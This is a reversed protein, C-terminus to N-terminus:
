SRRLTGSFAREQTLIATHQYALLGFNWGRFNGGFTGIEIATGDDGAECCCAQYAGGARRGAVELRACALLLQGAYRGAGEAGVLRRVAVLVDAGVVVVVFEPGALVVRVTVRSVEPGFRPGNPHFAFRFHGALEVDLIQQGTDPKLLPDVAHTAHFGPRHDNGPHAHRQTFHELAKARGGTGFMDRELRNETGIFHRSLPPPYEAPWVDLAERDFLRGIRQRQQRDAHVAHGQRVLVARGKRRTTGHFYPKLPMLDMTLMRRCSRRGGVLQFM